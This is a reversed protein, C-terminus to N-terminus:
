CLSFGLSAPPCFSLSDLAPPDEEVLAGEDTQHQGGGLCVAALAVADQEAAPLAPHRVNLSRDGVLRRFYEAVSIGGFYESGNMRMHMHGVDVLIGTRPHDFVPGLDAKFYELAAADLPFDEIALLVETGRTLDQLRSLAAAIRKADHLSGRSDKSMISDLSFVGLQEGMADVMTKMSQTDMSVTGHMTAKLNRSQLSEIVAPLHRVSDGVFQKPNFSIADFGNEAFDHISEPVKAADWCYNWIAIANNLLERGLRAFPVRM